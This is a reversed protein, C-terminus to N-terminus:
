ATRPRRAGPHFVPNRQIATSQPHLRNAVAHGVSGDEVGIRFPSMFLIRPNEFLSVRANRVLVAQGSQMYPTAFDVFTGRQATVTMGSMIIDIEDRQAAPILRDFRMSVFRVERGLEEGLMNAFSAEVGQFRGRGAEYILPANNGSVGVRLRPPANPDRPPGAGFECSPLPLAACTLLYLFGRRGPANPQPSAPHLASIPDSQM